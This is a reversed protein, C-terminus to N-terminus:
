QTVSGKPLAITTTGTSKPVIATITQVTSGRGVLVALAILGALPGAVTPVTDAGLALLLFLLGLGWATHFALDARGGVNGASTDKRMHQVLDFGVVAATAIMSAIVLRRATGPNM